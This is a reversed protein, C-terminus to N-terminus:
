EILCDIVHLLGESQTTITLESLASDLNEIADTIWEEIHNLKEKRSESSWFMEM